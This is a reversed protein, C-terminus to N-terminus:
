GAKQVDKSRKQFLKQLPLHIGMLDDIVETDNLDFTKHLNPQSYVNVIEMSPAVLWCSKVGLAFYAKIKRILFSVSQSPSLVEIALNFGACPESARIKM